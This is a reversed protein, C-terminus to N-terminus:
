MSLALSVQMIRTFQDTVLDPMTEWLNPSCLLVREMAPLDLTTGQCHDVLRSGITLWPFEPFRLFDIFGASLQWGCQIM